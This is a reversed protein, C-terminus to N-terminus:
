PSAMCGDRSSSVKFSGIAGVSICHHLAKGHCLWHYNQRRADRLSLAGFTGLGAVGGVLNARTNDSFCTPMAPRKCVENEPIAM